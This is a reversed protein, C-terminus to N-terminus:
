VEVIIGNSDSPPISPQHGVVLQIHTSWESPPWTVKVKGVTSNFSIQEISVNLPIHPPLIAQCKGNNLKPYWQYAPNM